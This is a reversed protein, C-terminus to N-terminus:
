VIPPNTNSSKRNGSTFILALGVVVITIPWLHEFDFDPLINYEDLLLVAGLVIFLLGAILSFNSKRKVPQYTFPSASEAEPQVPPVTYDVEPQKFTYDVKKPLVIWLIIYLLVGSGKAILAVLFLVRVITPDIDLYDAIGECVGGVMKNLEDRYLRRNNNM